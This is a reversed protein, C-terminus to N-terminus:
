WVQNCHQMISAQSLIHSRNSTFVLIAVGSPYPSTFNIADIVSYLRETNVVGVKSFSDVSLLSTDKPSNYEKIFTQM